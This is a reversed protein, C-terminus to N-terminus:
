QIKPNRSLNTYFSLFKMDKSRSSCIWCVKYGDFVQFNYFVITCYYKVKPITESYEFKLQPNSYIYALEFEVLWIWNIGKTYPLYQLGIDLLVVEWFM